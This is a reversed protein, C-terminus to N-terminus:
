SLKVISCPTGDDSTIVEICTLPHSGDDYRLTEIYTKFQARQADGIDSELWGEKSGDPPILFSRVGNIPSMVINTIQPFIESAKKHAEEIYTGYSGIVIISNHKTYSMKKKRKFIYIINNLVFGTINM